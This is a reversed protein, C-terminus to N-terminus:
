SCFFERLPFGGAVFFHVGAAPIVLSSLVRHSASSVPLPVRLAGRYSARLFASSRSVWRPSCSLRRQSVSDVHLPTFM